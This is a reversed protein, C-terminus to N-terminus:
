AEQQHPLLLYGSSLAVLVLGAAWRTNLGSRALAMGEVLILLPVLTFQASWRTAGLRSLALVALLALLGDCAVALLAPAPLHTGYLRSASANVLWALLFLGLAGLLASSVRPPRATGETGPACCLVAGVGTLVPALALLLDRRLGTVGPQPLILLLGAVAALGPWIRGTVGDSGTGAAAAAVAVAVSTLALVITLSAADLDRGGSLLGIAPGGLLMAGALMGRLDSFSSARRGLWLLAFLWAWLCGLARSALTSEAEPRAASLMWRSAAALVLLVFPWWRHWRAHAAM